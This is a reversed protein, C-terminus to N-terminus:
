GTGRLLLVSNLGPRQHISTYAQPISPEISYGSLRVTPVVGIVAYLTSLPEGLRVYQGIPDEAPWHRDAFAQDIVIVPTATPQSPTTSPPIGWSRDPPLLGDE